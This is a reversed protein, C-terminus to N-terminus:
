IRRRLAGVGLLGAGLLLLSAPFPVVVQQTNNLDANVVTGSFAGTLGSVDLDTQISTTGFNFNTPSLGFFGALTPNKVDLGVAAFLGFDASGILENPTGSFTGSLLTTGLPLGAFGLGLDAQVGGIVTITGGPGFQWSTAGVTGESVNAGTTFNLECGVCTLTVGANLPTNLGQISQFLIDTGIAPGGAGDYSVTGGPTTPDDFKLIPQANAVVPLLLAMMLVVVLARIRM